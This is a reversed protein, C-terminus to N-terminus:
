SSWTRCAWGVGHVWGPWLSMQTGAAGCAHGAAGLLTQSADEAERPFPVAHLRLTVFVLLAFNTVTAPLPNCSIAPLAPPAPGCGSHRGHWAPIARWSCWRAAGITDAGDTSGNFGSLNAAAKNRARRSFSSLRAPNSQVLRLPKM